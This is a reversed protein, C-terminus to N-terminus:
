RGNKGKGIRKGDRLVAGAELQCEAGCFDREPHQNTSYDGHYLRQCNECLYIRCYREDENGLATAAALWLADPSLWKQALLLELMKAQLAECHQREPQSMYSFDTPDIILQNM